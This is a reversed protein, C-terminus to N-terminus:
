LFYFIFSCLNVMWWPCTYKDYFYIFMFAIYWWQQCLRYSMSKSLVAESM